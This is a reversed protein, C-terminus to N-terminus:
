TGKTATTVTTGGALHNDIADLLARADSGRAAQKDFADVLAKFVLHRVTPDANLPERDNWRALSRRSLFGPCQRLGPVSNAQNRDWCVSVLLSCVGCHRRGEVLVEANAKAAELVGELAETFTLRTM